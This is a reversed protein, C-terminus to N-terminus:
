QDSWRADRPRETASSVETQGMGLGGIELLAKSTLRAAERARLDKKNKKQLETISRWGARTFTQGEGEESPGWVGGDM